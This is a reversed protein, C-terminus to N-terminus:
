SSFNLKKIKLRVYNKDILEQVKLIFHLRYLSAGNKNCTIAILFVQNCILDIKM